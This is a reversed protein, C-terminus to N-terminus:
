SIKLPGGYVERVTAIIGNGDKFQVVTLPLQSAMPGIPDLRNCIASPNVRYRTIRIRYQAAEKDTHFNIENPDSGSLNDHLNSFRIWVTQACTSMSDM